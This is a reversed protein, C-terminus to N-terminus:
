SEQDFYLKYFNKGVVEDFGKEILDRNGHIYVHFNKDLKLVSKFIRAQRKVAQASIEFNDVPDPNELFNREYSRFSEIVADNGLVTSEFEGKSFRDHTKFFDVSRNLMDIQDAKSVSFDDQLQEGVFQRTMNMFNQTQHFADQLPVLKLFDEKWFRADSRNATDVLLIAPQEDDNIILCGKDLKSINIGEHASLQYGSKSAGVKLFNDKSESKFIGIVDRPQGDFVIDSFCGVYLEGAKINPHDTVNYLREALMRSNEVLSTKHAFLYMAMDRMAHGEEDDAFTYRTPDRFPSFFWACLLSRLLESDLRLPEQSLKLAGDSLRNGVGHVVLGDIRTQSFNIM